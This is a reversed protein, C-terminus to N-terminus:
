YISYEGTLKVTKKPKIKKERTKNLLYSFNNDKQEKQEKKLIPVDELTIEELQYQGLKGLWVGQKGSRRCYYYIDREIGRVILFPNENEHFRKCDKCYTPNKRRFTLILNGDKEITNLHLFDNYSFDYDKHRYFLDLVIKEDGLNSTGISNYKIKEKKYNYDSLLTCSSTQSILSLWFLYNARAEIKHYRKPCLYNCSLYGNFIKINNKEFKHSGLLRFQQINKYVSNDIYKHYKSPIREIIIQYFNLMAKEDSVCFDPLVLHFSFKFETHSTFVLITTEKNDLEDFIAKKMYKIIDNEAMDEIIIDDISMDIDFYIKRARDPLMIEYFCKQPLSVDKEFKLFASYNEFFTYRRNKGQWCVILDEPNYVYNSLLNKEKSNNLYYYWYM